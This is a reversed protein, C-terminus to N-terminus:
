EEKWVFVKEKEVGRHMLEEIFFSEVKVEDPLHYFGHDCVYPYQLLASHPYQQRMRHMYDKSLRFTGVSIDQIKHFDVHRSVTELLESYERKWHPIPVIPDFCLRVTYGEELLIHIQELRQHLTCTGHEYKKQVEEASVTYAVICNKTKPLVRINRLDTGKTRIEVKFDPHNEAFVGWLKGYGLWPELSLLDTDYSACLYLPHQALVKETEELFDEMNVFVVINGSPYMGKLFCYECDYVCNMVNSCYYFYEQNFDQCVPSGKYLFGQKKRALILAQSHYQASYSQHRRNFVEKYDQIELITSCPFHSLIQRTRPHTRIDKEVYIHSFKKNWLVDQM